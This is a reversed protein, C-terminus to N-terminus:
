FSIGKLHVEKRIALLDGRKFFINKKGIRTYPLQGSNKMRNLTSASLRAVGVSSKMTLLEDVDETISQVVPTVSTSTQAECRPDPTISIQITFGPIKVFPTKTLSTETSSNKKHQM